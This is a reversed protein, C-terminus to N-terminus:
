KDGDIAFYKPLYLIVSTCIWLKEVVISLAWTFLSSWSGLESDYVCLEYYVYIYIYMNLYIYIYTFVYIIMYTYIITYSQIHIYELRQKLSTKSLCAHNLSQWTKQGCSVSLQALSPCAQDRTNLIGFLRDNTLINITPLEFSGSVCMKVQVDRVM